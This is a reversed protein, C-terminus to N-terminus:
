QAGLVKDAAGPGFVEDFHTAGKRGMAKLEQVAAPPPAPFTRGPPATAQGPASPGSQEGANLKQKIFEAHDAYSQVKFRSDKQIVAIQANIASPSQFKDLMASAEARSADTTANSGTIIKAYENAATEMATNFAAVDPDGTAKRGAQIWRNVVPGISTGAGKNMLDTAQSIAGNLASEQSSAVTGMKTIQTLSGVDAKTEGGIRAVTKAYQGSFNAIDDATADPNDQVFRQVAMAQASRATTGGGIRQAGGPTYPQKGDLTTAAGSTTDYRYQQNNKPDTLVQWKPAEAQKGAATKKLEWDQYAKNPSGDPNFPANPNDAHQLIVPKGGEDLYGKDGSALGFRQRDADTFPTVTGTNKYVSKIGGSADDLTTITNNQRTQQPKHWDLITEAFKEPNNLSLYRASEVSMGPPLMSATITPFKGGGAVIVPDSKKAEGPASASKDSPPSAQTDDTQAASDDEGNDTIGLSAARARAIKLNLRKTAVDEAVGPANYERQTQLQNSLQLSQRELDAKMSLIGADGAVQSVAGGLAALGAGINILGAM